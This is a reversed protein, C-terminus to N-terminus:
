GSAALARKGHTLQRRRLATGVIGITPKEVHKLPPARLFTPIGWFRRHDETGVLHGDTWGGAAGLLGTVVNEPPILQDTM